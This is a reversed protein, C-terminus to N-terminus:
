RFTSKRKRRGEAEKIDDYSVPLSDKLKEFAIYDENYWIVEKVNKLENLLPFDM